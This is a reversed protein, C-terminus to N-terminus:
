DLRTNALPQPPLKATARRAEAMADRARPWDLGISTTTVPVDRGVVEFKLHRAWLQGEGLLAVGVSVQLADAPVDMVVSVPQWPQDLPVPTGPLPPDGAGPEGIARRGIMGGDAAAMYVGAWPTTGQARLEASFRLRQGAYGFAQQTLAGFSQTDPRQPRTSRISVTPAGTVNGDSTLGIDYGLGSIPDTSHSVGFVQWHDPVRPTAASVTLVLAALPVLALARYDM